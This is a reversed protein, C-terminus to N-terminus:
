ILFWDRAEKDEPTFEYESFQFNEWRYAKMEKADNLKGFFIVAGDPYSDRTAAIFTGSSVYDNVVTLMEPFSYAEVEEIYEESETEELTLERAGYIRAVLEGYAQLNAFTIDFNM